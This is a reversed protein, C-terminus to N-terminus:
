ITLVIKGPFSKTALLQHAQAAEALDFTHAIVPSIKGEGFLQLVHGLDNRYDAPHRRKRM